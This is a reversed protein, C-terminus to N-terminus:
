SLIQHIFDSDALYPMYWGIKFTDISKPQKM